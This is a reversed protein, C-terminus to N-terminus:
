RVKSKKNSSANMKRGVLYDGQGHDGKKNIMKEEPSMVIKREELSMNRMGAVLDDRRQQSGGAEIM